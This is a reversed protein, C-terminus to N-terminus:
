ENDDGLFKIAVDECSEIAIEVAKKAKFLLKESEGRLRFSEAVQLAIKEQIEEEVRPLPLNLVDEDKIVPYSTGVNFKLMLDRYIKTRLLVQLVEVSFNGSSRLVAFAGSVLLNNERLIAVAGRNPRVKSVLIDNERTMIKANDPLEDTAILNAVAVGNSTNVDGIEVYKYFDSRRDCIDKVLKFFDKIRRGNSLEDLKKAIEDYKPQYFEADLRGSFGFSASFSKIAINESTPNFNELNLAESLTKEAAHYNEDARERMNFGAKCIKEVECAFDDSPIPIRFNEIQSLFVHQQVSGRAERQM